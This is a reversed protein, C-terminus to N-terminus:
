IDGLLKLAERCVYRREQIERMAADATVGRLLREAIYGAEHQGAPVGQEGV